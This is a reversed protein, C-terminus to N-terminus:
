EWVGVAEIGLERAGCAPCPRRSPGATSELLRPGQHGQPCPDGRKWPEASPTAGLAGDRWTAVAVSHVTACEGCGIPAHQM